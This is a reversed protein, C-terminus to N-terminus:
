ESPVEVLLEEVTDLAINGPERVGPKRVALVYRLERIHDCTGPLTPVDVPDPAPKIKAWISKVDVYNSALLIGAGAVLILELNM